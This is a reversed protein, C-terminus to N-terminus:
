ILGISLLEIWRITDTNLDDVYTIQFDQLEVEVEEYCLEGEEFTPEGTELACYLHELPVVSQPETEVPQNDSTMAEESFCDVGYASM